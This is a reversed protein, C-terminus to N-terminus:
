TKVKQGPRDTQFCLIMVTSQMLGVTKTNQQIDSFHFKNRLYHFSLKCMFDAPNYNEDMMVGVSDFHDM